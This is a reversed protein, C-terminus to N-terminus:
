SNVGTRVGAHISCAAVAAGRALRALVAGAPACLLLCCALADLERLLHQVVGLGRASAHTGCVVHIPRAALKSPPLPPQGQGQAVAQDSLGADMIGGGVSLSPQARGEKVDKGQQVCVV